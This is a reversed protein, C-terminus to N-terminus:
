LLVTEDFYSNFIKYRKKVSRGHLYTIDVIFSKFLICFMSIAHRILILFFANSCAIGSMLITM